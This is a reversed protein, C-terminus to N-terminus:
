VRASRGLTYGGLGALAGIALSLGTGNIGQSMAIGELIAICLMAVCAKITADKVRVSGM